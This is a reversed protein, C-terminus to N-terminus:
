NTSREKRKRQANPLAVTGQRHIAVRQTGRSLCASLCHRRTPREGCCPISSEIISVSAEKSSGNVNERALCQYIVKNLRIDEAEMQLTTNYMQKYRSTRLM